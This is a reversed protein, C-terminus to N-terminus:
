SLIFFLQFYPRPLILPFPPFHPPFILSFALLIPLPQSKLSSNSLFFPLLSPLGPYLLRFPSNLHINSNYEKGYELELERERARSAGRERGIIASYVNVGVRESQVGASDEKLRIFIHIDNSPM